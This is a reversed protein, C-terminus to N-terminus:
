CFGDLKPLFTLRFGVPTNSQNLTRNAVSDQYHGGIVMEALVGGDGAVAFVDSACRADATAIMGARPPELPIGRFFRCFIPPRERKARAISAACLLVPISVTTTEVSWWPM